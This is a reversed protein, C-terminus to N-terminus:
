YDSNSKVSDFVEKLARLIDKRSCQDDGIFNLQLNFDNDSSNYIFGNGKPSDTKSNVQVNSQVTNSKTKTNPRAIERVKKVTLDKNSIADLFKHMAKEDFQRAVELLTSKATIESARCKKRIDDPLGAITLTETVTSRSKGLKKAIQEHTYEFKDSLAALGDAEEWITLDKRQMNEILAVEAVERDDFDFEICPVERLGALNAARWRREGAIIMYTGDNQPKVLLPELIGKEKISATLESLDGIETRPQDPNPAIKNIPIIKGFSRNSRALEEVYHSDHRMTVNSPLGRKTAM